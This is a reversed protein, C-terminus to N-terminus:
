KYYYGVMHHGVQRDIPPPTMYDGYINTLIHHYGEPIILSVNEFPVKIPVFWDKNMVLKQIPLNYPYFMLPAVRNSPNDYGTHTNQIMKKIVYKNSVLHYITNKVINRLGGNFQNLTGIHLKTLFRSRELVKACTNEDEPLVDLPFIDLFVGKKTPKIALQEDMITNTDTINCYSYPHYYEQPNDYSVIKYDTSIENFTLLKDYDERIMFVDVDDDWPIFGKERVAGILTGYALFYKIDHAECFEDFTKLMELQIRHLDDLSLQSGM